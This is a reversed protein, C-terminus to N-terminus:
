NFLTPNHVGTKVVLKADPKGFNVNTDYWVFNDRIDILRSVAKKESIIESVEFYPCVAHIHINKKM